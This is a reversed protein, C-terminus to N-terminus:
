GEELGVIRRPKGDPNAIWFAVVRKGLPITGLDHDTTAIIFAPEPSLPPRTALYVAWGLLGLAVFLSVVALGRM